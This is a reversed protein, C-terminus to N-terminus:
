REAVLVVFEGRARGFLGNLAARRRMAVGDAAPPEHGANRAIRTSQDIMFTTEHGGLPSFAQTSAFGADRALRKLSAATFLHLHRPIELGRWDGGFLDRGQAQMNPTVMVLRGGPRLLAACRAFAHAPDPLHEIVHSMTIADYTGDVLAPDDLDGVRATVGDLENAAAIARADFDIGEAQWGQGAAAALFGGSGCGVDLLRGPPLDELHFLGSAFQASQWPMLRALLRKLTKHRSVTYQGSSAREDAVSDHTYYTEYLKGIDQVKPKPDVWGIACGANGCQRISWRGPAGFLQDALDAHILDGASGCLACVPAPECAIGDNDIM